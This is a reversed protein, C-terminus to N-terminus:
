RPKRSTERAQLESRVQSVVHAWTQSEKVGASLRVRSALAEQIAAGLSSPEPSAVVSHDPFLETIGSDATIVAPVGLFQAEAVPLGFGEDSSALIIASASAVTSQYEEETVFGPLQLRHELGLRAARAALEDAYAGRAGLIVLDYDRLANGASALADLVLEPRKNNHHGFTVLHNSGERGVPSTVWRRAHDRGNEVLTTRPRHSYAHTEAVAKASICFNMGAYSASAQWLVRYIRQALPFESPNKKHRWDHQFCSSRARPVFPSVIPSLSIVHDARRRRAVWPTILMQGAARRLSRENNVVTVELGLPEFDTRAWEGGVVVLEDAPFIETWTTIIETGHLRMGGSREPAGLIDFVIRMPAAM